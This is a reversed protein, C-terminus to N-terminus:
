AKEQGDLGDHPMDDARPDGVQDELLRLLELWGSFGAPPQDAPVVRGSVRGSSDQSLEVLFEVGPSHRVPTRRRM